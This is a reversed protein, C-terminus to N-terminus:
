SRRVVGGVKGWKMKVGGEEGWRKCGGRGEAGWWWWWEGGRIKYWRGEEGVVWRREERYSHLDDPGPKEGRVERQKYSQGNEGLLPLSEDVVTIVEAVDQLNSLWLVGM